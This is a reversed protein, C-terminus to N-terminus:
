QSLQPQSLQPQSLQPQSLQPQSNPEKSFIKKIKKYMFGFVIGVFIVCILIIYLKNDEWINEWFCIDQFDQRYTQCLKKCNDTKDLKCQNKVDSLNHIKNLDICGPQLLNNDNKCKNSLKDFQGNNIAVCEKHFLNNDELCKQKRSNIMRNKMDDASNKQLDDCEQKLIELMNNGILCKNYILENGYGVALSRYVNSQPDLTQIQQQIIEPKEVNITICTPNLYNIPNACANEQQTILELKKENNIRLPTGDPPNKSEDTYKFTKNRYDYCYNTLLTQENKCILDMSQLYTKYISYRNKYDDPIKNEETCNQDTLFNVINCSSSSPNTFYEKNTFGSPNQSRDVCTTVGILNLVWSDDYTPNTNTYGLTGSIFTNLTTNFINQSVTTFRFDCLTSIYKSLDSDLIADVLQPHHDFVENAYTDANPSKIFVIFAGTFGSIGLVTVYTVLFNFTDGKNSGNMYSLIKYGPIFTAYDNVGGTLAPPKRRHSQYKHSNELATREAEIDYRVVGTTSTAKEGINLENNYGNINLLDINNRMLPTEDMRVVWGEFPSNDRTNNSYQPYYGTTWLNNWIAETMAGPYNTNTSTIAPWGDNDEIKWVLGNKSAFLFRTSNTFHTTKLHKKIETTIASWPATNHVIYKNNKYYTGIANRLNTQFSVKLSNYETKGWNSVGLIKNNKDLYLIYGNNTLHCYALDNYRMGEIDTLISTNDSIKYTQLGSNTLRIYSRHTTYSPSTTGHWHIEKHLIEAANANAKGLLRLVDIGSAVGIDWKHLAFKSTKWNKHMYLFGMYIQNYKDGYKATNSSDNAVIMLNGANLEFYDNDTPTYAKGDNDLSWLLNPPSSNDYICLQGTKLVCLRCNTKDTSPKPTQWVTHSQAIDVRRLELWGEDYFTLRFNATGGPTWIYDHNSSEIEWVNGGAYCVNSYLINKNSASTRESNLIVLSSVAINNWNSYCESVKANGSTSLNNILTSRSYAALLSNFDSDYQYNNITSTRTVTCGNTTTWKTNFEDDSLCKVDIQKSGSIVPNAVSIGNYRPGYYNRSRSRTISKGCSNNQGNRDTSNYITDNMDWNSYEYNIPDPDQSKLNTNMSALIKNDLNNFYYQCNPTHIQNIDSCFTNADDIFLNIITEVNNNDLVTSCNLLLDELSSWNSPNMFSNNTPNDPNRINNNSDKSITATSYQFSININTTNRPLNICILYTGKKIVEWRNNLVTNTSDYVINNYNSLYIRCSPTIADNNPNTIRFKYYKDEAIFIYSMILYNNSTADTIQFNNKYTPNPNNATGTDPIFKKVWFKANGGVSTVTGIKDKIWGGNTYGVCKINDRCVDRTGSVSNHNSVIDNGSPDGSFGTNGGDWGISYKIHAVRKPELNSTGITLCNNNKTLENPFISFIPNDM